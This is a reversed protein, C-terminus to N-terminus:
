PKILESRTTNLKLIWKEKENQESRLRSAAITFGSSILRKFCNNVGQKRKIINKKGFHYYNGCLADFFDRLFYCHGFKWTVAAKPWVNIMLLNINCIKELHKWKSWKMRKILNIYPLTASGDLTANYWLKDRENM